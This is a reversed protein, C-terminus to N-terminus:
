GSYVQLIGLGPKYGRPTPIGQCKANCKAHSIYDSIRTLKAERGGLETKLVTRKPCRKWLYTVLYKDFYEQCGIKVYHIVDGDLLHTLKPRLM